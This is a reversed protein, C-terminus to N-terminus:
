RKEVSHTANCAVSQLVQAFLARTYALLLQRAHPREDLFARLRSLPMKSATGAVQVLCRSNARDDNGLITESGTFGERGVTGTEAVRGDRMVAVLSVVASHPFYIQEVAKGAECLVAGRELEVVDLAPRLHEWEDSDLAALLGNRGHPDDPSM